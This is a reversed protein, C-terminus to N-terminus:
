PKVVEGIVVKRWEPAPYIIIEPGRAKVDPLGPRIPPGAERPATTIMLVGQEDVVDLPTLVTYSDCGFAGTTNPGYVRVYYRPVTM